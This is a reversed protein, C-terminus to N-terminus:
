YPHFHHNHHPCRRGHLYLHTTNRPSLHLPAIPTVYLRTRYPIPISPQPLSSSTPLMLITIIYIPASTAISTISIISNLITPAYTNPTSISDGALTPQTGVSRKPAQHNELDFALFFHHYPHPLSTTPAHLQPQGTRRPKRPLFFIYIDGQHEERVRLKFLLLIITFFFIIRLFSPAVFIGM